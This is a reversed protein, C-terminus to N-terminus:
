FETFEWLNQQSWNLELSIYTTYKIAKSMHLSRTTFMTKLKWLSFYLVSFIYTLEGSKLKSM